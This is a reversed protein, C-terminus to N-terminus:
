LVDYPIFIVCNVCLIGCVEEGEFFFFVLRIRELARRVAMRQQNAVRFAGRTAVRKQSETLRADDRRCQRQKDTDM